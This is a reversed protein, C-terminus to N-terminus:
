HLLVFVGGCLSIASLQLDPPPHLLWVNTRRVEAAPAFSSVVDQVQEVVTRSVVCDWFCHARMDPPHRGCACLWSVGSKAGAIGDISLWWLVKKHKNPLRWRWVAGLTTMLQQHRLQLTDNSLAQPTVAARIMIIYSKHKVIRALHVPHLFCATAAKVTVSPLPLRAAEPGGM